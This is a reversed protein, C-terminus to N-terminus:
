LEPIRKREDCLKMFITNLKEGYNSYLSTNSRLIQLSISFWWESEDYNLMNILDVGCNWAFCAFYYIQDLDLVNPNISLFILLKEFILKRRSNQISKSDCLARMMNFISKKDYHFDDLKNFCSTITDVSLTFLKIFKALNTIGWCSSIKQVLSVGSKGKSVKYLIKAITIQDNSKPESFPNNMIIEEMKIIIKKMENIDQNLVFCEFMYYYSDLVIELNERAFLSCVFFSHIADEFFGKTMNEIGSNLCMSCMSNREDENWDIKKLSDAIKQISSILKQFLTRNQCQQYIAFASHIAKQILILEANFGNDIIFILCNLAIDYRGFSFFDYSIFSLTESPIKSHNSLELLHSIMSEALDGRGGRLLSKVYHSLSYLGNEDIHYATEAFTIASEYDGIESFCTSIFRLCKTNKSTSSNSCTKICLNLWKITDLFLKNEYTEISRNWFSAFCTRNIEDTKFRIMNYFEEAKEFSNRKCFLKIGHILIETREKETLLNNLAKYIYQETYDNLITDHNILFRIMMYQSNFNTNDFYNNLKESINDTNRSLISYVIDYFDKNMIDAYQDIFKIAQNNDGRECLIGIILQCIDEIIEQNKERNNNEIDFCLFAWDLSLTSKSIHLIYSNLKSSVIKLDSVTKRIFDYADDLKENHIYWECRTIILSVVNDGSRPLKSMKHAVAMAKEFIYEADDNNTNLFTKYTNVLIYMFEDAFFPHDDGESCEFLHVVLKRLKPVINSRIREEFDNNVQVSINWLMISCNLLEDRECSDAHDDMIKQIIEDIEYDGNKVCADISKVLEGVSM